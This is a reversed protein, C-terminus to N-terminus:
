LLSVFPSLKIAVVKGEEGDVKNYLKTSAPVLSWIARTCCSAENDGGIVVASVSKDDFDRVNHLFSRVVLGLSSSLKFVNMDASSQAKNEEEEEEEEESINREWPQREKAGNDSEVDVVFRGM